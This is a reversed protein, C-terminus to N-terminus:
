PIYKFDTWQILKGVFNKKDWAEWKVFESLSPFGDNEALLDPINTKTVDENDIFIQLGWNSTPAHRESKYIEHTWKFEIKQVATCVGEKFCNYNASRVGTAFQISRGAKWRNNKDLRISHIKSGDLVLAKFREKFGLVM